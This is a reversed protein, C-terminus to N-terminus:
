FINEKQEHKTRGALKFRLRFLTRSKNVNQEKQGRDM